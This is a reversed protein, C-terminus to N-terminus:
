DMDSHDYVDSQNTVEATYEDLSTFKLAFIPFIMLDRHMKELGLLFGHVLRSHQLEKLTAVPALLYEPSSGGYTAIKVCGQLHALQCKNTLFLDSEGKLFSTIPSAPNGPKLIQHKVFEIKGGPTKRLGEPVLAHHEEYAIVVHQALDRKSARQSSSSVTTSM